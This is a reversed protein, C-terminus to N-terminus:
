QQHRVCRSTEDGVSHLLAAKLMFTLPIAIFAGSLGLLMQWFILAVMQMTLSINLRRGVLLPELICGLAVSILTLLIGLTLTKAPGFVILSYILPPITALISGLVPIYNMVFTLGAWELTYNFGSIQFLGWVLLSNVIGMLTRIGMYHTVTHLSLVLARFRHHPQRQQCTLWKELAPADCLMFLLVLFLTVAYSLLGSIQSALRTIMEVLRPYDILSLLNDPNVQIGRDQFWRCIEQLQHNLLQPLHRSLQLTEPVLAVVKMLVLMFLGTLASLILAVAMVRPLGMRQILKVLPELMIAIFFSLLLQSLVPATLWVAVIFSPIVLLLGAWDRGFAGQASHPKIM